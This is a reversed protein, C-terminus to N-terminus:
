NTTKNASRARQIENGGRIIRSKGKFFRICRKMSDEWEKRYVEDGALFLILNISPPTADKETFNTKIFDRFFKGTEKEDVFYAPQWGPHPTEWRLGLEQQDSYVGYRSSLVRPPQGRSAREANIKQLEESIRQQMVPIELKHKALQSQYKSSSIHRDWDAQESDTPRRRINEFGRHFGTIIFAADINQELIIHHLRATENERHGAFDYSEYVKNGTMPIKFTYGTNSFAALGVNTDSTNYKAIWDVLEQHVAKGAPVITPKFFVTRRRDILMVNFLTGASLNGVMDTIEDRIVNFSALGGKNDTVMERGIDVCFLIREARTKLGFVSVDSMGLGLSGRTGGLLNGGGTGGLGASVTFSDAMDPLNVDVADVTINSVPKMQLNNLQSPQQNPKQKIEIKVEPPPEEEVIAPPEEFDAEDPIMYKVVTIGGLIFLAVLHLGGSILLVNLLMPNLKRKTPPPLM